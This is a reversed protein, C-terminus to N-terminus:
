FRIDTLNWLCYIKDIFLNGDFIKKPKIIHMSVNCNWYFYLILHILNRIHFKMRATVFFSILESPLFFSSNLVNSFCSGSKFLCTWTNWCACQWTFVNNSFQTHLKNAIHLKGFYLPLISWKCLNCNILNVLNFLDMWCDNRSGSLTDFWCCIM